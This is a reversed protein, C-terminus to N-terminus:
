QDQTNTSQAPTLQWHIMQKERRNTAKIFHAMQGYMIPKVMLCEMKLNALWFQIIPTSCKGLVM